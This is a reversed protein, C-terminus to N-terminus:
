PWQGPINHFSSKISSMSSIVQKWNELGFDAMEIVYGTIPSGGNDDPAHWCLSVSDHSVDPCTLPGGPIGPRSVVTVDIEASDKGFENRATIVYRGSDVRTSDSVHLKAETNTTDAM